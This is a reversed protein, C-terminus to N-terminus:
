KGARKKWRFKGFFGLISVLVIYPMHLVEALPFFPLLDLRRFVISGTWVVTLEATAKLFFCILPVPFASFHSISFPVALLMLCFYIFISGLIAVLLKQPYHACKSTWRARQQLFVGINNALQVRVFTDPAVTFVIKWATKSHIAQMLLDDDGSVLRKGEAFGGADEFAKRRYALNSASCTVPFSVGIAGAETAVLGLFELSQLKHFLSHEETRSFEARGAVMGVRPSFYSAMGRIWTPPVASDGDTTFILESCSNRIGTEIASKKGQADAKNILLRINEGLYSRVVEATDDDSHDDVVIIEFLEKPYDQKALSDLCGGINREENRVPVIVSVSFSTRNQRPTGLLRLLGLLAALLLGAYGVTFLVVVTSLTGWFM